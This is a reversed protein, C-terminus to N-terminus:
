RQVIGYRRRQHEMGPSEAVAQAAFGAVVANLSVSTLKKVIGDERQASEAFNPPQRDCPLQRLTRATGLAVQM